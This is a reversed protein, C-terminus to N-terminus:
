AFPNLVASLLSRTIDEMSLSQQYLRETNEYWSFFGLMFARVVAKQGQLDQAQVGWHKGGAEGGTLYAAESRALGM